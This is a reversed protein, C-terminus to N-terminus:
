RLLTAPEVLRLSRLAALGALLAMTMTVAVASALLWSPLQLPASVINAAENLTIVVPTAVGIGIVGVWFSQALVSMAMRWRPIGLAQLVAYERISAATAAYLTQSTVIAGVLLGLAAALGLAIGAKTKTLWHMRTRLSFEQSTFASMNPYNRLRAVIGPAEAPRKCRALVYATQDAFLRLLPRATSLSAFVYPGALSRLGKVMGVVRVRQGTIEAVDGIGRIGLRDKDSEDIIIAGPETLRARLEPTLERVAGMSNEELRSGIVVCLESGGNPKGWYAFGQLYIEAALVDPQGAVRMLYSEPVPRGLDVSLVEPAGVWIDARTHDVPISTISFLGLLLGCQLAILLASFGVALVGPLYRHREYWLTALSYSM